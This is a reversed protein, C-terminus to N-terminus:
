VIPTVYINSGGSPNTFGGGMVVLGGTVLGCRVDAGSVLSANWATKLAGAADVAAAGLRATGGVTTFDGFIYFVGNADIATDWGTASANPNWTQVGPTPLTTNIEAFKNRGTASVTTFDGAIYLNGGTVFLAEVQANLSATITKSIFTASDYAALWPGNSGGAYLTGSLIALCRGSFGVSGPSSTQFVDSSNWVGIGHTVGGIQVIDGFAFANGNSPDVVIDNVRSASTIGSAFSDLVQSTDFRAVYARSSAGLATFQGSVWLRGLYDAYVCEVRDNANPNWSTFLGTTLDVAALRNRTLTGSADHVSTFQGGVYLIHGIVAVGEILNNFTVGNIALTITLTSTGTGSITKGPEVAVAKVTTTVNVAFGGSYVTSGTTPTSGDTTYYITAGAGATITVTQIGTFSGTAPLIVPTASVFTYASSAVASDAYGAGIAIAKVTAGVSLSFGGVYLTSGSNPTSGNTTYYIAVGPSSDTITVTQPSSYSGSGPSIVPTAATQTYVATAVASQGYAPATAIAKVTKSAGSALSFPGTYLTSLPTPTTGDTTYFIQSAVTSCTITVSHSTDFNGNPPSIVPTDAPVLIGDIIQELVQASPGNAIANLGSVGLSCGGTAGQWYEVNADTFPADVLPSGTANDLVGLLRLPQYTTLSVQVPVAPNVLSFIAVAGRAKSALVLTTGVVRLSLIDPCDPLRFTAVPALAGTTGNISLIYGNGRFDALYLYGATAVGVRIDGIGAWRTIVAGAASLVVIEGSAGACVIVTGYGTIWRTHVAGVATRSALVPADAQSLAVVDGNALVTWILSGQVLISHSEAGLDGSDGVVLLRRSRDLMCVRRADACAVAARTSSVLAIPGAGLLRPDRQPHISM